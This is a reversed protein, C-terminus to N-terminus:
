LDEQCILVFSKRQVVRMRMLSCVFDLSPCLLLSRSVPRNLRALSAALNLWCALEMEQSETKIQAQM